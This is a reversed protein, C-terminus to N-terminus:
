DHATVVDHVAIVLLRVGSFGDHRVAPKVGAVHANPVLFVVDLDDVALFVDDDAAALIDRGDFHLARNGSVRGDHFAGHDRGGVRLPALHGGGEDHELALM